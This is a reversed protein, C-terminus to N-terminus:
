LGEQVVGLEQKLLAIQGALEERTKNLREVQATSRANQAELQGSKTLSPSLTSVVATAEDLIRKETAYAEQVKKLQEKAAKIQDNLGNLNKALNAQNAELKSLLATQRTILLQNKEKDSLPMNELLGFITQPALFGLFSFFPLAIATKTRHMLDALDTSVIQYGKERSSTFDVLWTVANYLLNGAGLPVDIWARGATVALKYSGYFRCEKWSLVSVLNQRVTDSSGPNFITQMVASPRTSPLPPQHGNQVSPQPQPVPVGPSAAM